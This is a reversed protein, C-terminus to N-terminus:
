FDKKLGSPTLTEKKGKRLVLTSKASQLIEKVDKLASVKKGDLELLIDSKRLGAAEAPSGEEVKTVVLGQGEPVDLQARLADSVKEFTAGGTRFGQKEEDELPLAPPVPIQWRFRRALPIGPLGGKFSVRAGGYNIGEETIGFKEALEKHDAVFKELSEAEVTKPAGKDDTYELKVAGTRDKRFSLPLSGDGPFIKYTSDGNVSQVTVSSGFGGRRFGFGPLGPAGRRAAPAKPKEATAFSDLVGRARERVEPDDSKLALKLAEEAPKGIKKLEETAKERVSFEDSGLQKILQDVKKAPDDQAFVGSFLAVVAITLM